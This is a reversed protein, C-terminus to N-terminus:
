FVDARAGHDAEARKVTMPLMRNPLNESRAVEREPRRRGRITPPVITMVRPPHVTGVISGVRLVIPLTADATSHIASFV